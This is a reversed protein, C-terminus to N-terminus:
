ISLIFWFHLLFLQLTFKLTLKLLSKIDLNYICMYILYFCIGINPHFTYIQSYM